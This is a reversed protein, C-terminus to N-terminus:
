WGELVLKEKLKKTRPPVAKSFFQRGEELWKLTQKASVRLSDKLEEDSYYHRMIEQKSYERKM